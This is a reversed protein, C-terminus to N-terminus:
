FDGNEAADTRADDFLKNAGDEGMIAAFQSWTLALANEYLEQDPKRNVRPILFAITDIEFEPGSPPEGGFRPDFYGPHYPATCILSIEFEIEHASDKLVIEASQYSVYDARM